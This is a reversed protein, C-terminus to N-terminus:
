NKSGLGLGQWWADKALAARLPTATQVPANEIYAYAEELSEGGLTKLYCIGEAVSFGRMTHAEFNPELDTWVAGDWGMQACWKQVRAVVDPMRGHQFDAHYAGILGDPARERAQLDSIADHINERTSRIIHTKCPVGAKPDLCVVLGLKRKPSVRSFEMPLRPGGEMHWEGAVHPTLIELDWILSGWGIIAIKM